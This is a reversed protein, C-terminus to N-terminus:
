PATPPTPACNYPMDPTQELQEAVVDDTGLVVAARGRIGLAPYNLAKIVHNHALHAFNEQYFLRDGNVEEKFEAGVYVHQYSLTHNGVEILADLAEAALVEKRNAMAIDLAQLLLSQGSAKFLSPVAKLEDAKATYFEKVEEALEENGSFLKDAGIAM